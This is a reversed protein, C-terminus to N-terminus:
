IKEEMEEYYSYDFENDKDMKNAPLTNYRNGKNKIINMDLIPANQDLFLYSLFDQESIYEDDSRHENYKNFKKLQKEQREKANKNHQELVVKSIERRFFDIETEPDIIADILGEIFDLKYVTYYYRIKLFGKEVMKYIVEEKFDKIKGKNIVDYMSKYNMDKLVLYETEFIIRKETESAEVHEDQETIIMITKEHDCIRKSKLKKLAREIIKSNKNYNLSFFEKVSFYDKEYYRAVSEQHFMLNSFNNNILNLYRMLNKPTVYLTDVTISLQENYEHKTKKYFFNVGKDINYVSKLMGSEHHGKHIIIREIKDSYLDKRGPQQKEIIDPENKINTITLQFGNKEMEVYQEINQIHIRKAKGDKPKESLHKCLEKYNKFTHPTELNQLKKIQHKTLSQEQQTTNNTM